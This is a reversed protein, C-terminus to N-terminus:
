NERIKLLMDSDLNLIELMKHAVADPNPEVLFGDYGDTIQEM